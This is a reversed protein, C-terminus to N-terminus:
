GGVEAGLVAWAVDLSERAARVDHVRFLRAGRALAAVHAGTTGHQREAANTVGTIEGIFRKRSAGVLLPRGLALLAPLGALVALSHAARKAFGVGPDLVIRESAVGAATAAALSAALERRVTAIVGGDYTAHADSALEGVGGRSHMLIVGADAEACIHAIRPELRLGSVDNIADAGERLVAEAVRAKTTDVSIAVDPLAARVARVAPLVRRLEEDERTPTAGPRTSEGGVDIVDAGEAVMAVARAAAADPDGYRGGDSFSDPTVNLIGVVVPRDLRLTRARLHWVEPPPVSPDTSAPM